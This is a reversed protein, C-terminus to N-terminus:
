KMWDNVETEQENKIYRLSRQIREAFTYTEAVKSLKGLSHSFADGHAATNICFIVNLYFNCLM